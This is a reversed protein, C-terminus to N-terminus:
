RETTCVKDDPGVVEDFRQNYIKDQQPDYAGLGPGVWQVDPTVGPGLVTVRELDGPAPGRPADSPYGPPPKQPVFSYCFAGNGEHLM